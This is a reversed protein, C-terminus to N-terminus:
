ADQPAHVRHRLREVCPGPEATRRCQELVPADSRPLWDFFLARKEDALLCLFSLETPAQGDVMLAGNGRLISSVFQSGVTRTYKEIILDADSNFVIRASAMGNKRAEREAHAQCTKVGPGAYQAVAPLALAALLCGIGIRVM